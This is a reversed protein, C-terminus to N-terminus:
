LACLDDCFAVMMFSRKSTVLPSILGTICSRRCTRAKSRRGISACLTRPGPAGLPCRWTMSTTMSARSFAPTQSFSPSANTRRGSRCASSQAQTSRQCGYPACTKACFPALRADRWICTSPSRRSCMPFTIRYRTKMFVTM